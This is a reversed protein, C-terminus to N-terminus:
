NEDTYRESIIDTNSGVTYDRDPSNNGDSAIRFSVSCGIILLSICFMLVLVTAIRM